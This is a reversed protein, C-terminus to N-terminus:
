GPDALLGWCSDFWGQMSQVFVSGASSPDGEDNVHRTLTSGLGLVDLAEVETGDDLLITREVVEYPGFLAEAEPRLYLKFAPVLPVHRVQVSVSPVLGETRLDRVATRLSTTHRRTIGRLREQLQAGVPDGKADRRATDRGGPRPYPLESEESPLLMRIEIGAPAIEGMRIREAQLRIHADLSESTLTFVDLRVDSQGFARAIFPGLAARVPVPETRPRTAAQLPLKIVRTGSGQRSEVWGESKLEHLVRQVTDRSVGFEAALERQAPLSAHLGYTGDALQERLAELVREFEKGGGEGREGSM